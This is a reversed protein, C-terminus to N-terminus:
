KCPAVAHLFTDSSSSFTLFITVNETEKKNRKNQKTKSQKTKNQKNEDKNTRKAKRM